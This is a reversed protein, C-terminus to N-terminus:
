AERPPQRQASAAQREIWKMFAARDIGEDNRRHFYLHEALRRMPSLALGANIVVNPLALDLAARMARKARFAPVERALAHYPAPGGNLLHDAVLAAARRGFKFALRIGGGTM